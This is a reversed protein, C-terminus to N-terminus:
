IVSLTKKHNRPVPLVLRSKGYQFSHTLETLRFCCTLFLLKVSIVFVIYECEISFQHSYSVCFIRRCIKVKADNGRVKKRDDRHDNMM